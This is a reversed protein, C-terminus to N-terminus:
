CVSYLIYAYYILVSSIGCRMKCPFLKVSIMLLFIFSLLIMLLEQQIQDGVWASFPLCQPSCSCLVAGCCSGSLGLFSVARGARRLETSLHVETHFAVSNQFCLDFLWAEYFWTLWTLLGSKDLCPLETVSLKVTHKCVVANLGSTSTQFARKKDPYPYIYRLTSGIVWLSVLPSM